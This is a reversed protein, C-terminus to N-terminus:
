LKKKPEQLFLDELGKKLYFFSSNQEESECFFNLNAPEKTNANFIYSFIFIILFFLLRM